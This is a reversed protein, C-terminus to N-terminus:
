SKTAGTALVQPARRIFLQLNSQHSEYRYGIGFGLPLAARDYADNMERQYRHKFVPIPGVYRGYLRQDWGEGYYRLPVGSDDQLVVPSHRLIHDRLMAFEKFHLLYSASKVLTAKPRFAEVFRLYHGRRSLGADSLDTKLYYVSRVVTDGPKQFRILVGPIRMDNPRIENASLANVPCLRDEADLLIPQVANIQFGHRALFLMMIPTVGSLKTRRLDADMERTVFFSLALISRLSSRLQRLSADLTAEDFQSLDPVHGIPELGTMVISTAAPFFAMAYAIDPGSFPYFLPGAGTSEVAGLERSHFQAIPRLRKGEFAGWEAAFKERHERVSPRAAVPGLAGDGEVEYGALMRAASSLWEASRADTALGAPCGALGPARPVFHAAERRASQTQAQVEDVAWFQTGGVALAALVAGLVTQKM